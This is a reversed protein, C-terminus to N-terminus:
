EAVTRSCATISGIYSFALSPRLAFKTGPLIGNAHL